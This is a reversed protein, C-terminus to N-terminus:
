PQMDYTPRERIWIPYGCVRRWPEYGARRMARALERTPEHLWRILQVTSADYVLWLRRLSRADIGLPATHWHVPALPARDGRVAVVSADFRRRRSERASLM